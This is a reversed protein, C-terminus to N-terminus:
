GGAGRYRILTVDPRDPMEIGLGESLSAGTRRVREQGLLNVLRYTAKSKLGRLPFTAEAYPSDPRRFVVVLGEDLDRRHFQFGM